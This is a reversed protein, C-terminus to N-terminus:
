PYRGGVPRLLRSLEEAAQGILAQSQATRFRPAMSQVQANTAELAALWKTAQEDSANVFYVLREIRMDRALTSLKAVEQMRTNREALIQGTQWGTYAVLVILAVLLSFGLALKTRV